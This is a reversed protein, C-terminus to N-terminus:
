GVLWKLYCTECVYVKHGDKEVIVYHDQNHEGCHECAKSKILVLRASETDDDFFDVYWKGYGGYILCEDAEVAEVAQSNVAALIEASNPFEPLKVVDTLFVEGDDLWELKWNYQIRM